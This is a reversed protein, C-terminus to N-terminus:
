RSSNLQVQDFYAEGTAGFLGIRVIAERAAGPVAFSQSEKRWESTGRWPGLWNQGVERRQDDYFTIMLNPLETPTEGVVVGELKVWTSLEIERVHRGDIALGQLLRSGLGSTQNSFRVYAKGHPADDAEIREAQRQYYWGSIFGSDDVPTEFSGNELEPNKPNPLKSRAQEAEGTMPVFLTPRLAESVLKGDVKKFLYMTQQYREGVPIVLRGGEKLQEVLPKPVSEPSCTVIIKDFPAHEAWGLFGDGIKTSVNAYGLQRLVGRARQGLSPVIEITYVEKVLPSLVAAQYGSGTGIELVKDEPQPELCETMYAVIFPSSITQQDGIPLAMDYYAFNRLRRPVFDHRPTKRISEVVRQDKIGATLIEEDVLRNRLEEFSAARQGSANGGHAFLAMLMVVAPFFNTRVM